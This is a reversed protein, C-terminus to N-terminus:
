GGHLIPVIRIEIEEDINSELLGLSALETGDAIYLIGPKPKQDKLCLELLDPYSELLSNMADLITIENFEGELVSPTGQIHISPHVKIRIIPM